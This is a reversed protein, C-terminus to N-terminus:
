GAENTNVAVAAHSVGAASLVNGRLTGNEWVRSGRTVSSQRAVIITDGVRKLTLGTCQAQQGSRSRLAFDTARVIGRRDLAPGLRAVIAPWLVAIAARDLRGLAAADVWLQEAILVSVSVAVSEARRRLEAAERSLRLISREFEPQVSRIAPLLDHRVRNRLYRRNTNSPDEAHKLRHAAAYRELAQRSTRLLPRVIPSEAYLAAIGRAGAGRLVRMVVTEIQDDRTHATVLTAGRQAAVKSLFEWRMNRWESESAARRRARGSVVPIGYRRATSRVLEVAETAHPGTAHDFTAVCSRTRIGARRRVMHLLAMSDLGGSVALVLPGPARSLAHVVSAPISRSARQKLM